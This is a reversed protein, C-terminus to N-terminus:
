AAPWAQEFIRGDNAIHGDDAHLVTYLEPITGAPGLVQLLDLSSPSATASSSAVGHTRSPALGCGRNQMSSSTSEASGRRPRPRRQRWRQAGAPMGGGYGLPEAGACARRRRDRGWRPLSSERPRRRRERCSWAIGRLKASTSESTALSLSQVDDVQVKADRGHLEVPALAAEAVGVVRWEVHAHVGLL